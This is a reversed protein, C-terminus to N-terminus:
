GREFFDKLRAIGANIDGIGIGSFAFRVFESGREGFHEGTCFSVGTADLAARMLEDVEAFNHRRMIAGVDCYVYFGARPAVACIGDITNLAAVLADRRRKLEGVLTPHRRLGGALASGVAHQAFHATCSEINTNMRAIIDAIDTPAVAAGVRWGTMAFQKSCTFLVVARQAMGDRRIISDPRSDDDYEIAYYAEDALVWLDRARAIDAVADIAAASLACGTPNHYNNLIIAVTKDTVARRVSDEDLAFEGNSDRRIFYPVAVGGQYRIQSEYIPFGPIPYLAEDGRNMVTALFKSIVPKGGPQVAVNDATYDGGLDDNILRAIQERLLPIGAGPAYGNKGSAIAAAVGDILAQPPAINLDGLHFPFVTHGKDQHQQALASVAFATETGLNKLNRATPKM